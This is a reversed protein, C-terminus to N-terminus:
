VKLFKVVIDGVFVVVFIDILCIRVSLIFMIKGFLYSDLYFIGFM